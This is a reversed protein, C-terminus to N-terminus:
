IFFFLCVLRSGMKSIILSVEWVESNVDKCCVFLLSASGVFFLFFFLVILLFEVYYCQLNGVNRRAVQATGTSTARVAAATCAARVAASIHGRGPWPEPRARLM